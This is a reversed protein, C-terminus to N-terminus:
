VATSATSSPARPADSPVARPTDMLTVEVVGTFADVVSELRDSSIALLSRGDVLPVLQKPRDLRSVPWLRTGSGGAMIMAHRM